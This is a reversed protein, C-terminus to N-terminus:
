LATPLVTLQAELRAGAALRVPDINILKSLPRVNGDLRGARRDGLGELGLLEREEGIVRLGRSIHVKGTHAKLSIHLKVWLACGGELVRFISAFKPLGPGLVGFISTFMPLDPGLVRFISTFKAGSPHQGKFFSTFKM